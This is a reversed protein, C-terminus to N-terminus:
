LIIIQEYLPTAHSVWEIQFLYKAFKLVNYDVDNVGRIQVYGCLCNKVQVTFLSFLSDRYM